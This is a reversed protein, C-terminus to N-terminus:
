SSLAVKEVFSLKEIDEISPLGAAGADRAPRPAPSLPGDDTSLAAAATARAQLAVGAPEPPVPAPEDFLLDEAGDPVADDVEAATAAAVPEGTPRRGADAFLAEDMMLDVDTQGLGEGPLAPGNLLGDEAKAPAPPPAPAVGSDGWIAMMTDIRQELFRLVGIVKRTRQGTIDQFSCATYIDTAKADILDCVEDPTGQERLTWAIEQITEAAGLIDGTATATAQVIADLEVSAEEFRGGEVGEPKIAAIEAKTSAIAQAMERIDMRIRDIEPAPARAVALTGELRQIAGLVATTDAHRNRRAYEALFWRGRATEMVADAISEYEAESIPAPPAPVPLRPEDSM